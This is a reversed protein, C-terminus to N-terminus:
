QQIHGKTDPSFCHAWLACHLPQMIQLERHMGVRRKRRCSMTTIQNGHAPPSSQAAHLLSPLDYRPRPPVVLLRPPRPRQPPPLCYAGAAPCRKYTAPLHSNPTRRSFCSNPFMAAKGRDRVPPSRSTFRASQSHPGWVRRESARRHVYSAEDLARKYDFDMSAMQVGRQCPMCHKGCRNDSGKPVNNKTIHQHNRNPSRKM